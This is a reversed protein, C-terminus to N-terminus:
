RAPSATTAHAASSRSVNSPRRVSPTSPAVVSLQATAPSRAFDAADSQVAPSPTPAPSLASTASLAPRAHRGRDEADAGSAATPSESSADVRDWDATFPNDLAQSDAVVPRADYEVSRLDFTGDELVAYRARNAPWGPRQLGVSGSNVFTTGAVTAAFPYHSHGHLM